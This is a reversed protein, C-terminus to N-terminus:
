EKLFQQAWYPIKRFFCHFNQSFSILSFREWIGLLLLSKKSFLSIHGNRPAAYWWDLRRRVQIFGDSLSTTFLIVGDEALLSSLNEVLHRVDAIHEFVEFVTILDFKEFHLFDLAKDLFPDYSTSQWGANSLLESLLGNGGGYDLHRIKKGEDGIMKMIAAANARPRSDLYDPDVLAYEFNYINKEFDELTWNRFEPAFCFGCFDCLFYYIPIGALPLFLGGGETCSKNFDVVDFPVCKKECVPCICSVGIASAIM